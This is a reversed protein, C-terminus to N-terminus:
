AWAWGIEPCGFASTNAARPSPSSGVGSTFFFPGPRGGFLAAVPTPWTPGATFLPRGAPEPLDVTGFLAPRGGLGLDTDAIELPSLLRGPRGGLFWYLGVTIGNAAGAGPVAEAASNADVTVTGAPVTGGAKGEAIAVTADGLGLPLGRFFAAATDAKAGVAATETTPAPRPRPRPRPRAGPRPRPRPRQTYGTILSPCGSFIEPRLGTPRGLFTVDNTKQM